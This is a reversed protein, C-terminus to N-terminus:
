KVEVMITIGTNGSGAGAVKGSISVPCYVVTYFCIDIIYREWLLPQLTAVEQDLHRLIPWTTEEQKEQVHREGM